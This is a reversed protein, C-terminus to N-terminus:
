NTQPEDKVHRGTISFHVWSSINVAHDGIRELYKAVMLRDVIADGREPSEAVAAILAERQAVFLRDVTDDAALVAQVLSLDRRVFADVSGTVMRRAAQAMQSLVGCDDPALSGMRLIEAVDETQDGIREMDTIMKLASSVLRLDRAVPQQRLLLRLCLQEVEREKHDIETELASVEEARSFDGSELVEAVVALSQECLAGMEILGRNLQELQSDLRNRM